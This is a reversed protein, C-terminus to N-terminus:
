RSPLPPPMESFLNALETVQGSPLWQAMGQKWVLTERTLQGTKVQQQLTVIDFPGQNQGNIAIHFSVTSPLPPPTGQPSSPPQSFAHQMQNAMAFGAGMALGNGALNSPNEAAKGMAEATQYQLYTNMNGIVGMSTRKNLAEAVAPPLSINSILFQTLEIGLEAFEPQLRKGVLESVENYNAALELMPVKSEGLADSFRTLTLNRLQNGIEETTLRNETGVIERLFKITDKIKFTYTGFARLQVPGFEPDRLMIPNPTGWKQNTFLRTSFFYIEAKFPSDFGYKWGKLTSLVPLNKTELTYTGPEFVDVPLLTDTDVRTQLRGENVFVALQGERVILKAGYKIENDHREFRYVIIDHSSELWEIIDIFEGKIAGWLSM